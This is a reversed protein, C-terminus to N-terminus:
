GRRTRGCRQRLKAIAAVALGATAMALTTPEPVSVPASFGDLEFVRPGYVPGRQTVTFVFRQAQVSTFTDEITITADGYAPVNDSALTGHSILQDPVGDSYIAALSFAAAGRRTLDGDQSLGLKISGLQVPHSLLFQVRFVTGDAFGDGFLTHGIDGSMYGPGGLMAGVGAYPDYYTGHTWSEIVTGQALDFLDTTVGEYGGATVIATSGPIHVSEAAATDLLCVLCAITLITMRM